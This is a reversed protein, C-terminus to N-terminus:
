FDEDHDSDTNDEYYDDEDEENQEEVEQLVKFLWINKNRTRANVYNINSEVWGKKKFEPILKNQDIGATNGIFLTYGAYLAWQEVLDLLYWGLGCNYFYDTYLNSVAVASCNYEVTSLTVQALQISETAIKGTLYICAKQNDAYYRVEIFLKMETFFQASKPYRKTLRQQIEDPLTLREEIFFSRNHSSSQLSHGEYFMM